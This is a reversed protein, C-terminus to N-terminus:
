ISSEILQQLQHQHYYTTIFEDISISNGYADSISKLKLRELGGEIIIRIGKEKRILESLKLLQDKRIYNTHHVKYIKKYEKEIKKRDFLIENNKIIEDVILFYQIHMKMPVRRVIQYGDCETLLYYLM